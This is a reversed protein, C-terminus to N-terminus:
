GAILMAASTTTPSGPPRPPGSTARDRWRRNRRAGTIVTEAVGFNVSWCSCLAALALTAQTVGDPERVGVTCTCSIDCVGVLMTPAGSSASTSRASVKTRSFPWCNSGPARRSESSTSRVRAASGSTRRESHAAARASWLGPTRMFASSVSCPKSCSGATRCVIRSASCFSLLEPTRTEAM